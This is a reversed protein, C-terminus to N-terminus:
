LPNKPPQRRPYIKTGHGPHYFNGHLTRAYKAAVEHAEEATLYLGLNIYEGKFHMKARFKKGEKASWKPTTKGTRLRQNFLQEQRTALRLNEWRDNSRNNDKHDISMTPWKGTMYFWALRSRRYCKQKFKITHYGVTGDTSGARDGVRRSSKLPIKIWHFEGSKPDYYLYEKLEEQTFM